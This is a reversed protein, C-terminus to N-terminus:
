VPWNQKVWAQEWFMWEYRASVAFADRARARSPEDAADAYKELLGLLTNTYEVFGPDAYTRLWDAYPHDDPIRGLQRELHAGLETYLWPCPAIAAIAEVMSGCQASRIMHNQYARNNPTLEISAIDEPTYGLRDGYGAHLQGEVVIALRAADIFWLKEPPSVCRVSILSCADAFAELYRADQMQYFRFRGSELSGDALAAVFPHNFSAGWAGGAMEICAHAFPPVHLRIDDTVKQSKKHPMTSRQWYLPAMISPDM